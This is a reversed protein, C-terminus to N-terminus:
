FIQIKSIDECCKEAFDFNLQNTLKFFNKAGQLNNLFSNKFTHKYKIVNWFSLLFNDKFFWYNHSFRCRLLVFVDNRMPTDYTRSVGAITLGCCRIAPEGRTAETIATRSRWNETEWEGLDIALCTLHYRKRVVEYSSINLQVYNDRKCPFYNIKFLVTPKKIKVM